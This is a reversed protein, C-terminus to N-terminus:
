EAPNAPHVLETVADVVGGVAEGVLRLAAAVTHTNVTEVFTAARDTTERVAAGPTTPLSACAFLLPISLILLLKRM